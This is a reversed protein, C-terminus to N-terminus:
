PRSERLLPDELNNFGRPQQLPNKLAIPGTSAIIAIEENLSPKKFSVELALRGSM